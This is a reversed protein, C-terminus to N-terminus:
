AGPSAVSSLIADVDLIGVLLGDVLVAGTLYPSDVQESAGPLEGVDVVADVAFGASGTGLEAVVIREPEEATLGLLTALAMVPIVRGRLNRVGMVEPPSGPVPTLDGLEAVELVGDVPLAYHEGAVRVRVHVRSM